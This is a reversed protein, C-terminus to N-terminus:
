ALPPARPQLARSTERPTPRVAVELPRQSCPTPPAATIPREPTLGFLELTWLQSVLLQSLWGSTSFGNSAAASSDALLEDEDIGDCSADARRCAPTGKVGGKGKVSGKPSSSQPDGSQANGGQLRAPQTEPVAASAAGSALLAVLTLAWRLIFLGRM